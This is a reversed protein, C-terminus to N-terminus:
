YTHVSCEKQYQRGLLEQDLRKERKGLREDKMREVHGSQCFDILSLIVFHSAYDTQRQDAGGSSLDFMKGGGKQEKRKREKKRLYKDKM